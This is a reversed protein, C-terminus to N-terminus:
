KSMALVIGGSASRLLIGAPTGGGPMVGFKIPGGLKRGAVIPTDTTM